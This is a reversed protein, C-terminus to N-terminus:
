FQAIIFGVGAFFSAVGVIKAVAEAIRTVVMHGYNRFEQVGMANRRMFQHREFFFGLAVAFGLLAIGIFGYM